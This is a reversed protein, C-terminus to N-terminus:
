YAYLLARTQFGISTIIIGYKSDGNQVKDLVNINQCTLNLTKALPILHSDALMRLKARLNGAM